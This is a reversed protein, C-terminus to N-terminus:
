GFLEVGGAFEAVGEEIGIKEGGSKGPTAPCARLVRTKRKGMENKSNRFECRGTKWLRILEIVGGGVGELELVEARATRVLGCREFLGRYICNDEQCCVAADPVM